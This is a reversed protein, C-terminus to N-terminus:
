MRALVAKLEATLSGRGRRYLPGTGDSMLVRLRAVARYDIGRPAHLRLTIDDILDQAALVSTRRVPVRRNWLSPAHADDIASRLARALAEREDRTVLRRAHLLLLGDVPTEGNMLRRDLRDALLALRVRSVVGVHTGDTDRVQTPRNGVRTTDESM